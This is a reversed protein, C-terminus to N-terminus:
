DWALMRKLRTRRTATPEPDTLSLQSQAALRGIKLSRPSLLLHRKFM